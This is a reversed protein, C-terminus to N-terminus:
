ALRRRVHTRAPTIPLARGFMLAPLGSRRAVGAVRTVTDPCNAQQSRSAPEIWGPLSRRVHRSSKFQAVIWSFVLELWSGKTSEWGAWSTSSVWRIQLIRTPRQSCSTFVEDSISAVLKISTLAPCSYKFRTPAHGGASCDGRRDSRVPLRKRVDTRSFRRM